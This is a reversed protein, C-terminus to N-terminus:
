GNREMLGDLQLITLSLFCTVGAAVGLIVMWPSIAGLAVSGAALVFLAAISLVTRNIVGATSYRLARWLLAAVALFFVLLVWRGGAATPLVAGLFFVVSLLVVHRRSRKAMLDAAPIFAAIVLAVAVVDATSAFGMARNGGLTGYELASLLVLPGVVLLAVFAANRMLGSRKARLAASVAFAISPLFHLAHEPFPSFVRSRSSFPGFVYWWYLYYSPGALLFLVAGLTVAGCVIASTMGKASAAVYLIMACVVPVLALLALMWLVEELFHAGEVTLYCAGAIGMVALPIITMRMCALYKGWAICRASLPTVALGELTGRQRERAFASAPGVVLALALVFVPILVLGVTFAETVFYYGGVLVGIGAFFLWVAAVWYFVRIQHDRQGLLAVARERWLVPNGRCRGLGARWLVFRNKALGMFFRDTAALLRKLPRRPKSPARKLFAVALELLVFIVIARVILAVIVDSWLLSSGTMIEGVVNLSHWDSADWFWLYQILVVGGALQVVGSVAAASATSSLLSAVVLTFAAAVAAAFLTIACVQALGELTFGGFGRSVVLVPLALSMTFAARGMVSGFTGFVVGSDGLRTIALLPLAGIRREDALTASRITSFILLAFYQVVAWVQFISTGLRSIYTQINEVSVRGAGNLFMVLLVAVLGGVFATRGLFHSRHRCERLFERTLLAAQVM